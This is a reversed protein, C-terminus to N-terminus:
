LKSKTNLTSGTAVFQVKCISVTFYKEKIKKCNKKKKKKNIAEIENGFIPM